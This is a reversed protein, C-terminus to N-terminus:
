LSLVLLVAGIAAYPPIDLGIGSYSAADIKSTNSVGADKADVLNALVGIKDKTAVKAISYNDAYGYITPTKRWETKIVFPSKDKTQNAQLALLKKEKMRYQDSSFIVKKGNKYVIKYIIKETDEHPAPILGRCLKKKCKMPSFFKYKKDKGRKFYLRADLIGSEDSITADIVIRYDSAFFEEEVLEISKSYVLSSFLVTLFLAKKFM